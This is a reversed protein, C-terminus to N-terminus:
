EVLTTVESERTWSEDKREPRSRIDARTNYTVPATKLSTVNGLVIEFADEIIANGEYGEVSIVIDANGINVNNQYEVVTVETTEVTQGESDKFSVKEVKPKIAKGTYTYTTGNVFQVNIDSLKSVPVKEVEEVEEQAHVPMIVIALLFLISCIGTFISKKM